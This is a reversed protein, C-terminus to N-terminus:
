DTRTPKRPLVRADISITSLKPWRETSCNECNSAFGTSLASWKTKLTGGPASTISCHLGNVAGLGVVYTTRGLPWLPAGAYGQPDLFSPAARRKRTSRREGLPQAGLRQILHDALALQEPRALRQTRGELGAPQVRHNQPARRPHALRRQRPEHRLAEVGLENGDRRHQAAHFVDALRHFTGLQESRAPAARHDEDVFHVAEVLRLLVCEQRM